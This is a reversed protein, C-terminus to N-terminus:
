GQGHKITKKLIRLAYLSKKIFKFVGVGSFPSVLTPRSCNQFLFFTWAKSRELFLTGIQNDM